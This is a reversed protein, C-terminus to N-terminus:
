PLYYFPNPLKVSHQAMPQGQLDSWQDGMNLLLTYGDAQIKAREAAKYATTSPYAGAQRLSLHHWAAYGAATLNAETAARQAEPRGTIFFVTVGLAQARKVLRVTGPIPIAAENSVIWKEWRDPIYGFDEAISECYSSLSTEDIDLVLALKAGRRAERVGSELANLARQTQADLDTWYCGADGTCDAYDRLAYRLLGINGVPEPSLIVNPDAAAQEQAALIQSATPHPSAKRLNPCTPPHNAVQASALTASLLAAALVRIVRFMM